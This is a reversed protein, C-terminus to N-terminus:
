DINITDPQNSRRIYPPPTSFSCGAQDIGSRQSWRSMYPPPSDPQEWNSDENNNNNNNNNTNYVTMETSTGEWVKDDDDDNKNDNEKNGGGGGDDDDDNYSTYFCQPLYPPPAAPQPYERRYAAAKAEFEALFNEDDFACASRIPRRAGENPRWRFGLAEQLEEEWDTKVLEFPDGVGIMGILDGAELGHGTQMRFLHEWIGLVDSRKVRDFATQSCQRYGTKIPDAVIQRIRFEQMFIQRLSGAYASIFSKKVIPYNM